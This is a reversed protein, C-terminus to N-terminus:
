RSATFTHTLGSSGSEPIAVVTLSAPDIRVIHDRVSLIDNSQMKFSIVLETSALRIVHLGILTLKGSSYDITGISKNVIVQKLTIPDIYYSQIVGYGDDKLYQV